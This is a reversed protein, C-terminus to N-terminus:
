PPRSVSARPIPRTSSSPCCHAGAFLAAALSLSRSWDSMAILRGRFFPFAIGFMGGVICGSLGTAFFLGVKQDSRGLEEMAGGDNNSAAGHIHASGAQEELAVARYLQPEGFAFMGALLLGDNM